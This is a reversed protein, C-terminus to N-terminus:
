HAHSKMWQCTQTANRYLTSSTIGYPRLAVDYFIKEEEIADATSRMIAFREVHYDPRPPVM